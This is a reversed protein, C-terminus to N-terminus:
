EILEDARLLISPPITLGLAKATKLNVVLEFTTPQEVPVDAPRAGKLIKDILGAVRRQIAAMSPGYSMLGNADVFVRVEYIAPLRHAAAFDVIRQRHRNTFPDVLTILADPRQKGMAAFVRDFDALTQVGLSELKLGLTAAAAETERARFVMSPNSSNWLMAVRVARPFTERLLELRKASLTEALMSVGTINGGPRSLSAVLGVGVPEGVGGFVIPITSSESKAALVAPTSWATILDVKLQVLEAALAPLRDLDGDAYRYELIINRGEVYGLDRLGQRLDEVLPDPPSGPRLVGIRAPRSSSQAGVAPVIAVLALSLILITLRKM